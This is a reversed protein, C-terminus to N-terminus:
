INNKLVRYSASCTLSIAIADIEDDYKIPKEIKILKSVMCTVQKKDARGYGAVAIKIQLPTYECIEIDKRIAEYIIVGRAEAVKMATKQNNNFLLTEIALVDPNYRDITNKIECGILGLREYFPISASTKFCDSYILQEKDRTKNNKEVIAIGVREFGPDIGLIQM